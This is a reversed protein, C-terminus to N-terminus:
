DSFSMVPERLQSFTATRPPDITVESYTINNSKSDLEVSTNPNFAESRTRAINKIQKFRQYCDVSTAKKWFSDIESHVKSCNQYIQNLIHYLLIALTVIFAITVLFTIVGIRKSLAPPSIDDILHLVWVSMTLFNLLFSIDLIGIARNKYPKAYAQWVTFWIILFTEITLALSVFDAGAVAYTICVGTLIVLRVGFWYRYKDKYPGAYADFLPKLRITYKDVSKIFVLPLTYPLLFFLTVSCAVLFLLIHLGTFFQLNGDYLWITKSEHESAVTAFSFSDIVTRLLKGYSLYFLTALVAISNAQTLKQIRSSWRSLLIIILCLILLYVPFVFQLGIKAAETMGDYFCLPFGLELNLLSVFIRVFSAESQFFIGGNISVVNVYFILGNITGKAVTLDLIFLALVLIVGAVAYFIITFLWYNTCQACVPTGFVISLGNRCMGCLIGTRGPECIEDPKEFDIDRVDPNCYGKPCTIVWEVKSQNNKVVGMWSSGQRNITYSSINCVTQIVTQVYNSCVCAFLNKTESLEFGPPCEKLLVNVTLGMGGLRTYLFLQVTSSVPGYLNFNVTSCNSGNHTQISQTPGLEFNADSLQAYMESQVRTGIIDLPILQVSLSKGPITTLSIISEGVFNVGTTENCFSLRYPISSMEEIGNPITEIFSFIADYINRENYDFNNAVTSAEPSFSCDYLPNAYISNGAVDAYNSEFQILLDLLGVDQANSIRQSGVIQFVCVDLTGTGISNAYIAGGNTLAHNRIFKIRSGEYIYLLTYDYLAIAGGRFSLNDSFHLHGRLYLMGGSVLVAGPSNYSFISGGTNNRGALTVNNILGFVLAASNDITSTTTALTSPFTNNMVTIDELLIESYRPVFLTPISNASLASGTQAINRYFSTNHIYVQYDTVNQPSMHLHIGGGITAMNDSFESDRVTLITYVNEPYLPFNNLSDVFLLFLFIMGGGRGPSRVINDRFICNEVLYSTERINNIPVFLLSSSQGDNDSFITNTILVNLFYSKQGSYVSIGTGGIATIIESQFPSRVIIYAALYQRTPIIFSNSNFNCNTVTLSSNIPLFTANFPPDAYLFFAGSGACSLDTVFDFCLPHNEYSTFLIHVDDLITEGQLNVGVIGYGFNKSMIIRHFHVNTVQALLLVTKQKEGFHAVNTQNVFETLSEPIFDGCNKIVLNEFFLNTINIFAFMRGFYNDTCFLEVINTTINGRITLNNINAVICPNGMGISYQGPALLVTTNSQLQNSCLYYELSQNSNTADPRITIINQTRALVM